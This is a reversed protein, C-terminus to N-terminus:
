QRFTSHKSHQAMIATKLAMFQSDTKYLPRYECSVCQISRTGFCDIYCNLCSLMEYSKDTKTRNKFTKDLNLVIIDIFQYRM